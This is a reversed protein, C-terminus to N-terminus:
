SWVTLECMLRSRAFTSSSGWSGISIWVTHPRPYRNAAADLEDQRQREEPPNSKREGRKQESEAPHHRPESMPGAHTLLLLRSLPQRVSERAVDDFVPRLNGSASVKRALARDQIFQEVHQHGHVGPDLDVQEIRRSPHLGIEAVGRRNAFRLHVELRYACKERTVGQGQGTGIRSLRARALDETRRHKRGARAGGHRGAIEVDHEVAFLAGAYSPM